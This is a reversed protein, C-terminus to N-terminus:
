KRGYKSPKIIKIIDNMQRVLRITDKDNVPTDDSTVQQIKAILLRIQQEDISTQDAILKVNAALNNEDDLDIMLSRRLEEKFYTYKKRVLDNNDHKRCYISGILRAFDLNRNVPKEMVPIVRQRRRATFVMFIVIATLITYLAWRLPRETLMFRLPSMKTHDIESDNACLIDSKVRYVPLDSIQAMQRNLYLSIDPDLAGYNTFFLPTLVIYIHGKGWRRCLSVPLAKTHNRVRRVRGDDYMSDENFYVKVTATVTYGYMTDVFCSLFGDCFPTRLVDSGTWVVTDKPTEGKLTAILDNTSFDNYTREWLQLWDNLDPSLRNTVLMLKNGVHIFSDLKVIALSDWFYTQNMVLLAKREKTSMLKQFNGEYYTYGKPMTTAAISDFWKCGFPQDDTHSYTENWFYTKNLSAVYVFFAIVAVIVVLFTMNRKM